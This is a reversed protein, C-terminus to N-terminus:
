QPSWSLEFIWQRQVLGRDGHLMDIGAGAHL